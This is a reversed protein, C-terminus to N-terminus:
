AAGSDLVQPVRLAVFPLAKKLQPHAVMGGVYTALVDDGGADGRAWILM